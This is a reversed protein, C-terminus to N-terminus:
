YIIKTGVDSCFEGINIKLKKKTKITISNGM